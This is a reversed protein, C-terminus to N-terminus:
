FRWPPTPGGGTSRSCTEPPQTGRLLPRCMADIFDDVIVTGCMELGSSRATTCFKKLTAKLHSQMVEDIEYATVEIRKVNRLTLFRELFAATLSGVGAGPDLLRVTGESNATFLSAMYKAVVSPTMFQGLASKRKPDLQRNAEQRVLDVADLASAMKTLFEAM